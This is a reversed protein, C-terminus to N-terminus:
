KKEILTLDELVNTREQMTKMINASKFNPHNSTTLIPIGNITNYVHNCNNCYYVWPHIWDTHLKMTGETKCNPCMLYKEEM